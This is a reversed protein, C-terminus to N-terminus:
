IDEWYVVTDENEDFHYLGEHGSIENVFLLRNGGRWEANWSNTPFLAILIDKLTPYAEKFKEWSESTLIEESTCGDRGEEIARMICFIRDHGRIKTEEFSLVLGVEEM